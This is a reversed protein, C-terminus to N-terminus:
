DLCSRLIYDYTTNQIKQSYVVLINTFIVVVQFFSKILKSNFDVMKRLLTINNDMGAERSKVRKKNKSQGMKVFIIEKPAHFSVRKREWLNNYSPAKRM